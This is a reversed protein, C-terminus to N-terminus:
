SPRITYLFAVRHMKIANNCKRAVNRCNKRESQRRNDDLDYNKDNEPNTTPFVLRLSTNKGWDRIILNSAKINESYLKM